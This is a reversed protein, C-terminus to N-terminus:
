AGATALLLGGLGALTLEIVLFRVGRRLGLAASGAAIAAAAAALGLCALLMALSPIAVPTAAALQSGPVDVVLGPLSLGMSTALVLVCAVAIAGIAFRAAARETGPLGRLTLRGRRWERRLQSTIIAIASGPPVPGTVPQDPRGAWRSCGHRSPRWGPVGSIWTSGASATPCM